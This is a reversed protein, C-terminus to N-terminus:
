DEEDDDQTLGGVEIYAPDDQVSRLSLGGDDIYVEDLPDLTNLWRKVEMVNMSM